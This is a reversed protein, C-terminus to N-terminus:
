LFPSILVLMIATWFLHSAAEYSKWCLDCRFCFSFGLKVLQYDTPLRNLLLHWYLLLCLAYYVKGLCVECMGPSKEFFCYYTKCSIDRYLAYM